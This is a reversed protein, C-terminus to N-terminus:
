FNLRLFKFYLMSDDVRGRDESLARQKLWDSRANYSFKIMIYLLKRDKTCIDRTQQSKEFKVKAM